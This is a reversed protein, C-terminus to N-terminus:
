LGIDALWARLMADERGGVLSLSLIEIITKRDDVPQSTKTARVLINPLRVGTANKLKEFPTRNIAGGVKPITINSHYALLKEFKLDTFGFKGLIFRFKEEGWGDYHYAWHAEHSGFIQRLLKFRYELDASVYRKALEDFDPVEIVLVGGPKLWRHWNSLLKLAWQRSFHEFTHHLRIEDVSNEPYDLTTLDAFQDATVVNTTHSEQPYDINVYGELYISGCGLHLKM